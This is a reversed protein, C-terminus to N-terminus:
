DIIERQEIERWRRRVELVEGALAALKEKIKEGDLGAPRPYRKPLVLPRVPERADAPVRTIMEYVHFEAPGLEQKIRKMARGIEADCESIANILAGCVFAACFVTKGHRNNPDCGQAGRVRCTTPCCGTGQKHCRGCIAFVGSAAFFRDLEAILEKRTLGESPQPQDQLRRREARACRVCLAFEREASGPLNAILYRLAGDAGCSRCILGTTRKTANV